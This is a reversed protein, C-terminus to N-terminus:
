NITLPWTEAAMSALREQREAIQKAGWEDCDGIEKTLQFASDGLVPKKVDFRSNGLNSNAKAQLLALNGIRNYLSAAEENGIKWDASPNLPLVHELNVITEDDNPVMEPSPDSQQKLELSRLCYRALKSKTVKKFKFNEIFENDDPILDSMATALEKTVTITRQGVAHAKQAYAKEITGAPWGSILMRVTWSVFLQFARAAEKVEFRRSVALMLPRIQVVGLELMTEIHRRVSTPYANWKEHTPNLLAAYAPANVELGTCFDTARPRSNIQSKLRRYLVPVRIEGHLTMWYHRIFDVLTQEDGVAEISSQMSAWQGIAIELNANGVKSFLYNKILDAKSLDLGRDNLTEFIVYANADDNVTVAVVVVKSCLFKEWRVLRKSKGAQTDPQHVLENVHKAAIQAAQDILKHSGSSPQVSRDTSDPTSLIRKCFFDSDKHSLTLRPVQELTEMDIQYLYKRAIEDARTNDKVATYYDRFAALLITITALRQQGDAISLNNGEDDTATLVCTGLFYSEDDDVAQLIDQFLDTVHETEWAYPRQNSPVSFRQESLLKAIGYEQFDFTSSSPM